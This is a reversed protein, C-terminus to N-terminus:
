TPNLRLLFDISCFVGIAAMALRQMPYAFSFSRGHTSRTKELLRPVAGVCAMYAVDVGSCKAVGTDFRRGRFYVGGGAGWLGRLLIYGAVPPLCGEGVLSRM